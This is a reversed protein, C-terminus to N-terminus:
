RLGLNKPNIYDYEVAYGYKLIKVSELGKISRIYLDQIDKPLATSIGNPYVTDDDLGEPELFVQHGEKSSFRVM